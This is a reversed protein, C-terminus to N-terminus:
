YMPLKNMKKLHHYYILIIGLIFIYCVYYLWILFLFFNALYGYYMLYKNIKSKTIILEYGTTFIGTVLIIILGTILTEKLTIKIPVIFKYVVAILFILALYQILIKLLHIFLLLFKSTEQISILYDLWYNVFVMIMITIIIVVLLIFMIMFSTIRLRLRKRHKDKYLTDSSLSLVNILKSSLWIISVFLIINSLITTQKLGAQVLEVINFFSSFPINQYDLGIKDMIDVIILSLPMFIILLYFVCSGALISPSIRKTLYSYIKSIKIILEKLKLKSM